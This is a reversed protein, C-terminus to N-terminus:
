TTDHRPRDASRQSDSVEVARVDSHGTLRQNTQPSVPTAGGTRPALVHCWHHIFLNPMIQAGTRSGAITRRYTTGCFRCGVVEPHPRLGTDPIISHSSIHPTLLQSRTSNIPHAGRSNKTYLSLQPPIGLFPLLIGLSGTTGESFTSQAPHWSPEIVSGSSTSPDRPYPFQCRIPNQSCPGPPWSIPTAHHSSLARAPVPM